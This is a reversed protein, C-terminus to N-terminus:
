LRRAQRHDRTRHLVRMTYADVVFTSMGAAYLMISDATEPGVGKISLMLARAEDLPLRALNEIRGELHAAMADLVNRLRQQKLNYYGAPRILRALRDPALSRMAELEYGPGTESQRHGKWM